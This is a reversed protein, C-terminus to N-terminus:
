GLAGNTLGVFKTIEVCIGGNKPNWEKPYRKAHYDFRKRWEKLSNLEYGPLSGATVLVVKHHPKRDPSICVKPEDWKLGSGDTNAIFSILTASLPIDKWNYFYLPEVGLKEAWADGEAEEEETPDLTSV